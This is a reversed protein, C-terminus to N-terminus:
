AKANRLRISRAEAMLYTALQTLAQVDHQWKKGLGMVCQRRGVVVKSKTRGHRYVVLTYDRTSV